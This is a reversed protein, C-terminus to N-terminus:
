FLEGESLEKGQQEGVPMSDASWSKKLNKQVKSVGINSERFCNSVGVDPGLVNLISRRSGGYATVM